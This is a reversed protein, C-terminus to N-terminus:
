LKKRLAQCCPVGIERLKCYLKDSIRICYTIDQIRLWVFRKYCGIALVKIFTISM